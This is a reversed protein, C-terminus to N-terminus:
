YVKQILTVWFCFKLIVVKEEISIKVWRDTQIRFYHDPTELQQFSVTNQGYVNENETESFENLMEKFSTAPKNDSAPEEIPMSSKSEISEIKKENDIM